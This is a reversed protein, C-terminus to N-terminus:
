YTVPAIQRDEGTWSRRIEALLGSAGIRMREPNIWQEGLRDRVLGIWALAESATRIGGAPKIGVKYGSREGYDRIAQCIVVGSDLRANIRERGTSTKIFSAGAMMAAMAAGYIDANQPLEGTALIVKVPTGKAAEVLRRVDDYLEEWRGELALYRPIPVDIEDALRALLAVEETRVSPLSLAHPFGGAAAVLRVGAERVWTGALYLFSPYVCVGATTVHAGPLPHVADELLSSIDTTQDEPNLATLDILSVIVELEQRSIGTNSNPEFPTTTSAFNLWTPDFVVGINSGVQVSAERM